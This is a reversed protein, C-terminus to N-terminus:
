YLPRGDPAYRKPRAATQRALWTAAVGADAVSGRLIALILDHTALTTFPADVPTAAGGEPPRVLFPVRHDVPGAERPAERWHAASVVIWTRDTLRRRELGRRLEGITRDALALNDRYSGDAATFNWATLHGGARDYIAPPGALPLHLLVLGLRGDTAARLALESLEAFRQAFLRRAHVPPVLSGWQNSLALSLTAGRAQERAVSPRWAATGLSPGLVRPYPLHWGILATDYGLARARSFVNPQANWRAAQGDALVLELENPSAPAVAVVPRGTVLAPMAIDTTGAPPFADVAHLAERALRDLEPLELGAPRAEFALRQDLDEFVVWVVRRLSPATRALPAPDVVRRVPGAAVELFMWLIQVVTLIALPSAVLAAGRMARLAPRPWALSAALVLAVAALLAPLGIAETWQGVAAHALRVFNLSALFIAAAAGAALRFAIGRARRIAQVGLFGAASVAAINLVLALLTPAGLPVQNYFEWDAFFLIERRAQSFWLAAV